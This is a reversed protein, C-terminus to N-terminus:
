CNRWCATNNYAINKWYFYHNSWQITIIKWFKTHSSLFLPGLTTYDSMTATMFSLIFVSHKIITAHPKPLLSSCTSAQLQTIDSHNPCMCVGATTCKLLSVLFSVICISTFQIVDFWIKLHHYHVIEDGAIGIHTHTPPHTYLLMNSLISLPCDWYPM